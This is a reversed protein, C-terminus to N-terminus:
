RRFAISERVAVRLWREAPLSPQGVSRQEPVGAPIGGRGAAVSPSARIKASARHRLKASAPATGTPAVPALPDELLDDAGRVKACRDATAAIGWTRPFTVPLGVDATVAM